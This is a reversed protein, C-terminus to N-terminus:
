WAFIVLVDEERPRERERQEPYCYLEEGRSQERETQIQGDRHQHETAANRKVVSAANMREEGSTRAKQGARKQKKRREM